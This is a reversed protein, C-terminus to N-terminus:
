RPVANKQLLWVAPTITLLLQALTLRWTQILSHFHFLWIWAGVGVTGGRHSPEPFDAQFRLDMLAILLIALVPWLDNLRQRGALWVFGAALLPAVAFNGFAFQSAVLLRFWGSAQIGDQGVFGAAKACLVLPAMVAFAALLSAALPLLGFVALPARAAWSRFKRHALMAQALEEDSGLRAQARTTADDADFGQARQDAILDDLHESLEALYRRVYRPAIGGNLLTERLTEFQM